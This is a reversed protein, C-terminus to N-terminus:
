CGNIFERLLAHERATAEADYRVLLDGTERDEFAHTANEFHVLEILAGNDCLRNLAARPRTYGVVVDRGATIALSRPTIRWARRGAFSTPGAYPYVLFTGALGELPERNLDHLGTARRMEDGARLSLADMITWAGHSWGAGIIRSPDAWEQRRVWAIAAYLDGARERGRLRAGTCVTAYAAARDIGRPAFSDIEVAAAGADAMLTAIERQFPRPGGCGHLMLLVPFPGSGEPRTVHLHPALWDARAELTRPDSSLRFDFRQPADM